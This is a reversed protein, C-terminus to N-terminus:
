RAFTQEKVDNLEIYSEDYTLEKGSDLACLILVLPLGCDQM